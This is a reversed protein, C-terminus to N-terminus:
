AYITRIMQEVNPNDVVAGLRGGVREGAEFQPHNVVLLRRMESGDELPQVYLYGIVDLFYPMTVALQGQVYPKYKGDMNRTFAIVVVAAVPNAPHLTLDRFDRILREMHALLEGWQRETPAELGAISDKARKQIESISDIVISRFHHQGTALWQYARQVTAYDRVICICTEWTGDYAPPPNVPDWYTKAGPTWKQGGEADLVLRPAPATAGLWSKGAKSAGHVLM